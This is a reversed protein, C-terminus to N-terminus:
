GNKLTEKLHSRIDEMTNAVHMHLKNEVGASLSTENDLWILYVWGKQMCGYEHKIEFIYGVREEQCTNEFVVKLPAVQIMGQVTSDCQDLFVSDGIVPFM